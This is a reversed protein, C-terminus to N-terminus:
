RDETFRQLAGHFLLPVKRGPAGNRNKTIRLEVKTEGSANPGRDEESHLEMMTEAGYEFKRSGAGASMGGTKMTLRNREVVGLVACDLRATIERLASIAMNLGDYEAVEGTWAAAWAHVSDIVILLHESDGRTAEAAEEIWSPVAAARSADAIVLQSAASAAQRAYDVSDQPTLEGSRFRGLYQGTVRATIRRFLELAGMEATVFLCPTGCTAAVQLVLATKGAGPVAHVYHLGPQLAGGLERDLSPLATIPGRAIGKVRADHAAIADQEWQELLDALRLLQPRSPQEASM